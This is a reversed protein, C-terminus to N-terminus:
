KPKRYNSTYTYNSDPVEKVCGETMHAVVPMEATFRLPRLIDLHLLSSPLAKNAEQSLGQFWPPGCPAKQVTPAQSPLSSEAKVPGPLYKLLRRSHSKVVM